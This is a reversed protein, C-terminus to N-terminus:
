PWATSFLGSGILDPHESLRPAELPAQALSSGFPLGLIEQAVGGTVGRLLGERGKQGVATLLHENANFKCKMLM